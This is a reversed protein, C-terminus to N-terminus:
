VNVHCIMEHPHGGRLKWESRNRSTENGMGKVGNRVTECRKAGNETAKQTAAGRTVGDGKGTCTPAQITAM